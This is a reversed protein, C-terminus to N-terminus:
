NMSWRSISIKIVGTGLCVLCPTGMDPKWFSSGKEVIRNEVCDCEEEKAMYEEIYDALVLRNTPDESQDYCVHILLRDFESM